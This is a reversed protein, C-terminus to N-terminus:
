AIGFIARLRPYREKPLDVHCLGIRLSVQAGDGWPWWLGFAGPANEPGGWYIKQEARLGGCAEVMARVDDPAAPLSAATWSTPLAEGIAPQVAAETSLPITTSVCQFRRDYSWTPSPWGARLKTLKTFLDEWPDDPNAMTQRYAKKTVM